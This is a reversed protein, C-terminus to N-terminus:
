FHSPPVDTDQPQPSEDPEAPKWDAISLIAPTAIAGFALLPVWWPIPVGVSPLVFWCVVAILISLFFAILLRRLM